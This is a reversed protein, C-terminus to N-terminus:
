HINEREFYRMRYLQESRKELEREQEQLIEDIAILIHYRWHKIPKYGIFKYMGWSVFFMIVSGIIIQFFLSVNDLITLLYQFVSLIIALEALLIAFHEMYDSGSAEAKLDLLKEHQCKTESKVLEKVLVYKNINKNESKKYENELKFCLNEFGDNKGKRM